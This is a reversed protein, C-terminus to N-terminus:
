KLRIRRKIFTWYSYFLIWVLTIPLVIAYWLFYDDLQSVVWFVNANVLIIVILNIFYSRKQASRLKYYGAAGEVSTLAAYGRDNLAYCGEDNSILLGGLKKLHFDLLGSSNIKLTRKLDAFRLPKEALLKIIEIRIPNSIADFLEDSSMEFVIVVLGYFFIIRDINVLCDVIM